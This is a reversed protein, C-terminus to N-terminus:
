FFQSFIKSIVIGAIIRSPFKCILKWSGMIFAACLICDVLISGGSLDTEAKSGTAPARRAAVSVDPRM